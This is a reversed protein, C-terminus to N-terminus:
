ENNFLVELIELETKLWEDDILYIYPFDYLRSNRRYTVTLTRAEYDPEFHYHRQKAMADDHIGAIFDELRM